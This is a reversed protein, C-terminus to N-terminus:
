QTIDRLFDAVTQEYLGKGTLVLDICERVAGKGGKLTTIIDAEARIQPFADAPCVSVASLRMVPVDNWDDGMYLVNQWDLQLEHLLKLCAEAKNKVGQLCHRIGLDQCRRLLAASSRGTIVASSLGAKHLLMFGMGDHANFHKSESQGDTYIIKGDTLVGDCDFVLLKIDTWNPESIHKKGAVAM